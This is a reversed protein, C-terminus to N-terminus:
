VWKGREAEICEGSKRPANGFMIKRFDSDCENGDSEVRECEEREVRAEPAEKEAKSLASHFSDIIEKAEKKIKELDM